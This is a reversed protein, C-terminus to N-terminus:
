VTVWPSTSAPTTFLEALADPVGGVPEATVVVAFVVVVIVRVGTIVSFFVEPVAVPLVAPEVIGYVNRTVLAPLTVSVLTPTVSASILATDQGAALRAGPTDVVHVPVYVSVCASTSAPWTKLEAVAEAVGGLPAATVAVSPTVVGMLAAGLRVNVFVAPVADPLAAPEVIGYENRTVLVPLTVSVVTATASAFAPVTVQGTVCSAGLAAVVQVAVYGSVCASTSAPFTTLVAVAEALAGLPAATVSESETVVGIAEAGFIVSFFDAPFAEPLVAPEVIGYENRTVFVPLTVSVLTATVSAVIPVTVHGVPDRAGPAAVVHLAVYVSVCASTSRPWTMLEADAEAFGGVPAAAVAVSEIVVGIEEVGLTVSLFVAPFAVPLM